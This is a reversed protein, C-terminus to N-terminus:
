YTTKIDSLDVPIITVRFIGVGRVITFVMDKKIGNKNISDIVDQPKYITKNNISIIIDKPKLGKQAAPGNPLVYAILAGNLKRENLDYQTENVNALSVGIMPHIAKGNIALQNAIKIAKNIPIAFGLGAGPGSRILTNIGIVEGEANLLPGGSNGPNIAADTQILNFRKDSIGLQSVNRNLNSIIGLTVTKELGYPNGVAIAWDGVELEDSNGLLAIPWPGLGDLRIVALDTLSDQGVVRGSLRRGDSLGVTIQEIKEVVHANTLVLGENSFIVGSGQGKQIRSRTSGKKPIRFLFRELYPDILLSPQNKDRINSFVRKETEITVVAPGSKRVADAVFSKKTLVKFDKDEEVPKPLLPSGILIPLLFLSLFLSYKTILKTKKALLLKAKSKFEVNM